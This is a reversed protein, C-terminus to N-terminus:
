SKSCTGLDTALWGLMDVKDMENRTCGRCESHKHVKIFCSQKKKNRPFSLGQGWSITEECLSPLNALPCVILLCEDDFRRTSRSAGSVHHIQVCTEVQSKSSKRCKESETVVFRTLPLREMCILTLSLCMFCLVGPNLTWREFFFIRYLM